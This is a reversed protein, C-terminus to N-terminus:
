VSRDTAPHRDHVAQYSGDEACRFRVEVQPGHDGQALDALRSFRLAGDRGVSLEIAVDFGAVLRALAARRDLSPRTELLATSTLELMAELSHAWVTALIGRRGGLALRVLAGFPGPALFPAILHPCSLEELAAVTAEQNDEGAPLEIGLVADPAPASPSALWVARETSPLADVLARAVAEAGRHRECAVLLNAGRDLAAQLWEAMDKSLIGDLCLDGLTAVEEVDRVLEYIAGDARHEEGITHLTWGGPLRGRLVPGVIERQESCRRLRAQARSAAHRSSFTLAPASWRGARLGETIVGLVRIRTVTPERMLTEVPGLGLLEDRAASRLPDRMDPSPLAAIQADLAAGVRHLVEGDGMRWDLSSPDLDIEDLTDTGVKQTVADILEALLPQLEPRQVVGSAETETPEPVATDPVATDPVATDPVAAEAEPAGDAGPEGPESREEQASAMAKMEAAGVDRTEEEEFMPESDPPPAEDDEGDPPPQETGGGGALARRMVTAPDASSRYMTEGDETHESDPAAYGRVRLALKGIALQDQEHLPTPKREINRHNVFCGNTSGLDIITCAGEDDVTIMAHERSVGEAVLMLDCSRDRGVTIEAKHFREARVQGHLDAVVIALRVGDPHVSPGKVQQDPHTSPGTDQTAMVRTSGAGSAPSPQTATGPEAALSPMTSRPKPVPPLSGPEYPM